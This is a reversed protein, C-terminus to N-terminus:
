RWSKVQLPIGVQCLTIRDPQLEGQVEVRLGDRRPFKGLLQYRQGQDTQLQYCSGGELGTNRITGRFTTTTRPADALSAPTAIAGGALSLMLLVVALWRSVVM